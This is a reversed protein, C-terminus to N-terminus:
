DVPNHVDESPVDYMACRVMNAFSVNGMTFWRIVRDDGKKMSHIVEKETLGKEMLHKVEGSFNELYDLKAQLREKGNRDVPNHGCFLANFDYLLIKKISAIEDYFKEDARFFKIKDGLYMDGSFLWGMHKELYVTHDKSHGPTHIPCFRYKSSEIIPPFEFIDLNQAKGWVIIQYPLIILKTSMKHATYSHGFVPIGFAEKIALANGSHDEHCHTLLVKQPRKETLVNIVDKRAHALGTDIVVGDVCYFTSTMLPKGIPSYGMEWAEVDGWKKYKIKKLITVGYSISMNSKKELFM